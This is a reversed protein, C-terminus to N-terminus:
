VVHNIFNLVASMFSFKEIEFVLCYNRHLVFCYVYFLILKKTTLLIVTIFYFYFLSNRDQSETNLFYIATIEKFTIIIFLLFSVKEM